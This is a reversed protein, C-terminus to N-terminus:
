YQGADMRDAPARFTGTSASPNAPVLSLEIIEADPDILHRCRPPPRPPAMTEVDAEGPAPRRREALADQIIRTAEMVNQARTSFTARRMAAAFDKNM